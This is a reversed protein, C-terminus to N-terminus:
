GRRHSAFAAFRREFCGIDRNVGPIPKIEMSSKLRQPCAFKESAMLLAYKRRKADFHRWEKIRIDLFLRWNM